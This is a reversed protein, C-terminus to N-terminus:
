NMLKLMLNLELDKQSESRKARNPRDIELNKM